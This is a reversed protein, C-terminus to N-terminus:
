IGNISKDRRWAFRITVAAAVVIALAAAIIWAQSVAIGGILLGSGTAPLVKTYNM